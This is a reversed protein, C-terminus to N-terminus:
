SRILEEIEEVWAERVAEPTYRKFLAEAGKVWLSRQEEDTEAIEFALKWPELTGPVSIEPIPLLLGAEFASVATRHEAPSAFLVDRVGGSHSDAALIPLHLSLALLLVTPVGEHRSTLVFARANAMYDLPKKVTGLFLVSSNIDAPDKGISLNRSEALARSEAALPGDGLVVLQVGARDKAFDAWVSLLGEINKEHVLRGCFVYRRVGDDSWIPTAIDSDIFNRFTGLRKAPLQYLEQLELALPHSIALVKDLKRYVFGVPGRLAVMLRNTPNERINIVVLSVKQDRGLSLVSILDARWLTSITVDIGLQRKLRSLRFSLTAYTIWRLFLPLRPVPGLQFYPTNSEFHRPSGPPDFSAQYIDHVPSLLTSLSDVLKESGGAGMLSQNILLIRSM